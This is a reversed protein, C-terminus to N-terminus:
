SSPLADYFGREFRREGRAPSCPCSRAAGTAEFFRLRHWVLTNETRAIMDIGRPCFLEDQRELYVDNRTGVHQGAARPLLAFTRGACDFSRCPGRGGGNPRGLFRDNSEAMAPDRHPRLGCESQLVKPGTPSASNNMERLRCSDAECCSNTSLDAFFALAAKVINPSCQGAAAPSGRQLRDPLIAGQFVGRDARLDCVLRGWWRIFEETMLARKAQVIKTLAKRSNRTRGKIALCIRGHNPPDAATHRDAHHEELHRQQDAVGVGVPDRAVQPRARLRQQMDSQQQCAQHEQRDDRVRAPLRFAGFFGRQPDEAQQDGRDPQRIEQQRGGPGQQLRPQRACRPVRLHVAVKRQRVQRRQRRQQGVRDQDLRM